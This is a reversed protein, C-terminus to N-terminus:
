AVDRLGAAIADTIADLHERTCILPPSV